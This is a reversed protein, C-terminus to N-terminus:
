SRTAGDPPGIDVPSDPEISDVGAIAQLKAIHSADALGIVSGIEELVHEVQFGAQTLARAVDEPAHGAAVTIIWRDM